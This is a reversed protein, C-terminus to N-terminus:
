DPILIASGSTARSELDHHAKAVQSLFYTKPAPAKVVESQVVDFLDRAHALLDERKATYTMLSPRTLFLSGKAGLVALDFPAVPGSSQGFSVMTGLPRLCDLSKEFTTQGVSDYVVDVGRGSTIEMVRDVFNEKSYDVPYHCGNKKAIEVKEPTGVTGIVVAGLYAAWQCFITGVGGAAAHILVIDGKSISTCGFLLYRVTMGKLMIAAAAQYSLSDPLSVLRDAAITRYTSYAGPTAGAYGVRDGPSFEKVGQGVMEVIGSGEMGIVAPLFSLPYLGKRHYIDIFNLGIAKHRLLVEEKQPEVPESTEFIFEEPGGYKYIKVTAAM